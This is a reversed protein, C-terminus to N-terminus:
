EAGKARVGPGSLRGSPAFWARSFWRGLGHSEPRSMAGKPDAGASAAAREGHRSRLARKRRDAARQVDIAAATVLLAVMTPNGDM